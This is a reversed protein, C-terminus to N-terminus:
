IVGWWLIVTLTLGGVATGWAMVTPVPKEFGLGMDWILHRIGGMMHHCLVWLFLFLLFTGGRSIALTHVCDYWSAGAVLVGLYAVFVVMGGCLVLGSLRHAVSMLMTMSFRYIGLHPSLPRPRM